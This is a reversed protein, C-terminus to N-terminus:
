MREVQVQFCNLKSRIHVYAVAPDTLIKECTDSLEGGSVVEATEYRIWHNESYGRIIAPDLFEFWDPLVTDEYRECSDKHLFIPGTEAYPQLDTFPRYGLILMDQGEEVFGLCHRCPNRGGGAVEVVPAQGNSDKGGERLRTVETSSIGRVQLHM